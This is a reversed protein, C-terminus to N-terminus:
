CSRLMRRVVKARPRLMRADPHTRPIDLLDDDLDFVLMAGNREPM